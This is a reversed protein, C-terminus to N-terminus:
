HHHVSAREAVLHDHDSVDLDDPAHVDPWRAALDEELEIGLLDLMRNVTQDVIQDIRQPLHYFAPVPPFVIAGMETVQAMLRLHGLHLPTERVALVLPRRDKLAVDAARQILNDAYSTAIGSLTKVTCPVVVMGDTHFSGSAIAAGIDGIRYTVDALKAVEKHSYNTELSITRRASGSMVLHTEVDDVDRLVELLRVGYTVGSAGTMGVVIRRARAATQNM